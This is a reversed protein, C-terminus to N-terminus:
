NTENNKGISNFSNELNKQQEQRIKKFNDTSRHGMYSSYYWVLLSIIFIFIAWNGFDFSFMAKVIESEAKERVLQGIRYYIFTLTGLLLSGLTFIFMWSFYPLNNISKYENDSRMYNILVCFFPMILASTLLFVEGSKLNQRIADIFVTGLLASRLFSDLIIPLFSGLLMWFCEICASKHISLDLQSYWRNLREFLSNDRVVSEVSASKIKNVKPTSVADQIPAELLSFTENKGEGNESHFYKTKGEGSKIKVNDSHLRLKVRVVSIPSKAGFEFYDKEVIHEYVEQYTAPRKIDCLSQSIAEIITMNKKGLSV